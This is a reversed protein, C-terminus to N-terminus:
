YVDTPQRCRVSALLELSETLLIRTACETEVQGKRQYQNQNGIYNPQIARSWCNRITGPLVWQHCLYFSNQASIVTMNPSSMKLSADDFIEDVPRKTGREYTAELYGIRRMRRQELIKEEPVHEMQLELPINTDKAAVQKLVLFIDTYKPLDVGEADFHWIHLCFVDISGGLAFEHICDPRFDYVATDSFRGKAVPLLQSKNGNSNQSTTLTAERLYGHLDMTHYQHSKWAEFPLSM